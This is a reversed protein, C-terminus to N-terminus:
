NYEFEFYGLLEKEKSFCKEIIRLGDNYTNKWTFYNNSIGEETTIMQTVQGASNYEFLFDPM